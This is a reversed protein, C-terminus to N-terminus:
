TYFLVSLVLFHRSLLFKKETELFFFPDFFGVQRGLRKLRPRQPSVNILLKNKAKSYLVHNLKFGCSLATTSTHPPKPRVTKLLLRGEHEDLRTLIQFSSWTLGSNHQYHYQDRLKTNCPFYTFQIEHRKFVM